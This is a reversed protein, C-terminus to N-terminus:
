WDNYTSHTVCFYLWVPCKRGFKGVGGIYEAKDVEDTPNIDLGLGALSMVSM